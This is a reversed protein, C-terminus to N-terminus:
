QMVAYHSQNAIRVCVIYKVILIVTTKKRYVTFFDFDGKGM